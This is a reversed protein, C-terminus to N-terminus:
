GSVHNTQEGEELAINALLSRIQEWHLEDHRVVMHLIEHISTQGLFAHRGKREWVESSLPTLLEITEQRYELFLDKAAEGDQRRYDRVVAWEDASIGPIFENESSILLRFRYQHVEKEVDRLHCMVETLSWADTSPRWLWAVNSDLLAGRIMSATTELQLLLNTVPPPAQM